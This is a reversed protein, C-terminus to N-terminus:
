DKVRVSEEWKKLKEEHRPYWQSCIYYDTGKVNEPKVWYRTPIYEKSLISYTTMGFTKKSYEKDQLNILEEEPLFKLVSRLTKQAYKCIKIESEIESEERSNVKLTTTKNNVYKEQMLRRIEDSLVQYEKIKNVLDECNAWHQKWNEEGCAAKFDDQSLRVRKRDANYKELCKRRDEWGSTSKKTDMFESWEKNGKSSNCNSCCPVLNNIESIYGSPLKDVILPHLHDWESYPGGCYICHINNEDMGLAELANSIEEDTPNIVPIIGNVFSNTISSIRGSIKVPKPMKFIKSKSM